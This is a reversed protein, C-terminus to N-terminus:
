PRWVRFVDVQVQKQRYSGRFVPGAGTVLEGDRPDRKPRLSARVDLVSIGPLTVGGEDLQERVIVHLDGDGDPDRSQIAVVRGRVARCGYVPSPTPTPCTATWSAPPPPVAVEAATTTGTRGAGEALAGDDTAPGAGGTRGTTEPSTAGGPTATTALGGGGGGCGSLAGAALMAAVAAARRAARM